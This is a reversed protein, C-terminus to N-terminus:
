KQEFLAAMNKIKNPSSPNGGSFKRANKAASDSAPKDYTVAGVSVTRVKTENVVTRQKTEPVGGGSSGVSVTRSKPTDPKRSGFLTAREKVNVSDDIHGFNIKGASIDAVLSSVSPKTQNLELETPRPAPRPSGAWVDKTSTWSRKNDEPAKVRATLSSPEPQKLDVLKRLEPARQRLQVPSPPGDEVGGGSSGSSSGGSSAESIKLSVRSVLPSRNSSLTVPRLEVSSDNDEGSGGQDESGGGQDGSGGKKKRSFQDSLYDEAKYKARLMSRREEKYREM